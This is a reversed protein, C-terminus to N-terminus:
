RPALPERRRPALPAAAHQLPVPGMTKNGLCEVVRDDTGQEDFLGELLREAAPRAAQDEREFDLLWGLRRNGVPPHHLRGLGLGPQAILIRM